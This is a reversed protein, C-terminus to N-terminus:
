NNENYNFKPLILEFENGIMTYNKDQYHPKLLCKKSNCSKLNKAQHKIKYPIFDYLPYTTQENLNKSIRSNQLVTKEKKKKSTTNESRM